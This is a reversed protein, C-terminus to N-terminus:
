SGLHWDGAEAEKWLELQAYEAAWEVAGSVHSVSLEFKIQGRGFEQNLVSRM